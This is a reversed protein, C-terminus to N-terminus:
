VLAELLFAEVRESRGKLALRGLPRTRAGQLHELTAAAIAVGGAPALAQLRAATNVTDGIATYSRGAGAGVVGVVAPGTNVGARFRPWDPHEAAIRGGAEQLALAARAAQEAHDPQDGVTGFTAMIADGILKEVTGGHERVIPPIVVEYYTNLMRTVELPECREAFTTFGELDAFVVSVERVGAATQDLYLDSFREAPERRWTHYAILGFASGMLLHWEWWTAHWNRAFTVAVIAEALLAFAATVAVLLATPNRRALRVYGAAAAVYLVLGVIAVALLWGSAVEVPPRADLPPVSALSVLAWAAMVLLLGGRIRRSARMVSGATREGLATASSAAFAAAVTLGIPTAVAFGANPGSLLVGPTALAHLGLFGAAALFALSVLFIRADGRRRAAGGTLFALVANTASAGLVLWFHSPHDEWRVDLMPAARLLVLGALPLTLAVGIAVRPVARRSQAATPVDVV